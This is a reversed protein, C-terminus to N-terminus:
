RMIGYINDGDPTEQITNYLKRTNIFHPLLSCGRNEINLDYYIKYDTVQRTNVLRVNEYDKITQIISSELTLLFWKTNNIFSPKNCIRGFRVYKTGLKYVWQSPKRINLHEEFRIDFGRQTEGVYIYRKWIKGHRIYHTSILYLGEEECFNCSNARNDLLVPKGWDITVTQIRNLIM